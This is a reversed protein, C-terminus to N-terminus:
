EVMRETRAQLPTPDASVLAERTTRGLLAREQEAELTRGLQSLSLALLARAQDFNPEWDLATRLRPVALDPRNMATYAIAMNYQTPWYEPNLELTREYAEIAGANDNLTSRANGINNFAPWYEPAVGVAREYWGLAEIPNGAQQELVGLNYFAEISAPDLELVRLFAAGARSDNADMYAGGLNFWARAKDPTMAVTDEWLAVDSAWVNGRNLTFGSWIALLSVLIWTRYRFRSLVVGAFVAFGLLPLYLRHEFAFDHSPIFSTTPVLLLFFVLAGVGAWEFRATRRLMVAGALLLALGALGLLVAPEFVSTSPQFDYELSQPYPVLLLRLYTYVVRAETLFYTWPDVRSIAGLGVTEEGLWALLGLAAVAGMAVLGAVLAAVRSYVGTFLILVLPVALASEKSWAALMFLLVAAVVRLRVNEGKASNDSRGRLASLVYLAGLSFFAALLTSRQYIYLVAETQVPHALFTFGAAAAIWGGVLSVLLYYLLVGNAIHIGINVLHYGVADEGGIRHNLYFTFFTVQRLRLPNLFHSWREPNTVNSDELILEDDFHFGDNASPGFLVLGSLVLLVTVRWDARWASATPGAADKPKEQSM